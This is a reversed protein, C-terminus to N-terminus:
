RVGALRGSAAARLNAVESALARPTPTQFVIGLDIEVGFVEEIQLAIRTALMSNMGHDWASASVAMPPCHLVQALVGAMAMELSTREVEAVPAAPAVVPEGAALRRRDIKGHRTKPLEAMLVLRAPVMPGPLRTHLFDVLEDPTLVSDSHPVVYAVLHVVGSAVEPVVAVEDVV